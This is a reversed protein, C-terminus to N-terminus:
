RCLDGRCEVVPLKGMIKRMVFLSTAVGAILAFYSALAWASAAPVASLILTDNGGPVLAGGIGMLLGGVVRRPWQRWHNILAFSRRQWSSILMGALMASALLAHLMSPTSTDSLWSVTEARLFSTYSWTGQLNYLLGAFIGLLAAASSLRYAPALLRNRVGDLSWRQWWLRLGEAFLWLWLLLLFPLVLPHGTQWFSAVPVLRSGGFYTTHASVVLVGAVFAVLTALMSLDGDALRQLTSLSCGGNVAAGIGFAFAGGLSVTHPIRELVPVAAAPHLLMLAGAVAAGWAAAKLFSALMWATGSTMVEAVARVTCLSARHAAFGILMVLILSLLHGFQM